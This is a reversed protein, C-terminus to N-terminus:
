QSGEESVDRLAEGLLNFGLATIIICIAPYILLEAHSYLSGRSENLMMGWEPTGIPFGLGMFSFMSLTLITTSIGTSVYVSFQPIVNPILHRFVIQGDTCGSIRAATIYEKNLETLTLSRVMRVYWAWMALVLAFMSNYMNRGFVGVMAAAIILAPLAMFINCLVTMISEIYSGRFTSWTGIFLGMISLIGIAVISMGVSYRAGYILRSLECRGLQDAGLLFQEGAPAYKYMLEGKLPDNPALYPAFVAVSLLICIIFIGVAGQPNKLIKKLM